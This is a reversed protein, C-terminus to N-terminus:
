VTNIRTSPALRTRFITTLLYFTMSTMSYNKARRRKDGELIPIPIFAAAKKQPMVTSQQSNATSQQGNATPQQNNATPQQGNITSKQGNVKSVGLAVDPLQRIFGPSM